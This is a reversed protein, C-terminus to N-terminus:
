AQPRWKQSGLAGALQSRRITRPVPLGADEFWSAIADKVAEVKDEPLWPSLVISMSGLVEDPLSISIKKARCQENQLIVFLRTEQEYQWALDKVFGEIGKSQTWDRLDDIRVGHGNWRICGSEDCVEDNGNMSVYLVDSLGACKVKVRRAGRIFIKGEKRIPNAVVAEPRGLFRNWAQMGSRSVLIRVADKNPRCYMKWMAACESRGYSFCSIYTRRWGYPAGYKGFENWDNLEPNDLRSLWLSRNEIMQKLVKLTTYHQYGTHTNAAANAIQMAQLFINDSLNDFIEAYDREQLDVKKSM